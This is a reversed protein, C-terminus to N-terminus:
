YRKNNNACLLAPLLSIPMITNKVPVIGTNRPKIKNLNYSNYVSVLHYIQIKHNVETM